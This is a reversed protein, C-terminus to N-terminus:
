LNIDKKTLRLYNMITEAIERIEKQAHEDVRLHLFKKWDELTGTVVITSAACNPLIQRADEPKAGNDIAKFYADEITQLIDDDFADCKIFRISHNFKNGSYNCYRQSEQSFSLSRHRVIQHTFSRSGVIEFTYAKHKTLDNCVKEAEAGYFVVDTPLRIAENSNFIYPYDKALFASIIERDEKFDDSEEKTFEYWARINGSVYVYNGDESSTINFYRSKDSRAFLHQWFKLWYEETVAFMKREHELVSTHGRNVIGKIFREYSEDSIKDQSKYCVRGAYEIKRGPEALDILKVNNKVYEM